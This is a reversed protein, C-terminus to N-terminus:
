VGEQADLPYVALPQVPAIAVAGAGLCGPEQKGWPAGLLGGACHASVALAQPVLASLLPHVPVCTHTGAGGAGNEDFSHM